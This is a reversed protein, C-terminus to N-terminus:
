LPHCLGQLMSLLNLTAPLFLELFSFLIKQLPPCFLFISLIQSLRSSNRELLGCHWRFRSSHNQCWRWLCRRFRRHHHSLTGSRRWFRKLRWQGSSSIPTGCAVAPADTWTKPCSPLRSTPVRHGFRRVRLLVHHGFRGPEEWFPLLAARYSGSRMKRIWCEVGHAFFSTMQVTSDSGSNSNSYGMSSRPLLSALCM